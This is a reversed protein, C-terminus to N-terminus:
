MIQPFASRIILPVSVPVWPNMPEDHEDGVLFTKPKTSMISRCDKLSRVLSYCPLMSVDSIYCAAYKLSPM